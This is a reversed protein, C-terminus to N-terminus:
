PCLFRAHRIAGLERDRARFLVVTRVVEDAEEVAQVVHTVRDPDRPVRALVELRSVRHQEDLREREVVTRCVDGLVREGPQEVGRRCHHARGVRQRLVDLEPEARLGALRSEALHEFLGAVRVEPARGLGREVHDQFGAGSASRSGADAFATIPREPSAPEPSTRTVRHRRPTGARAPAPGPAARARLAWGLHRVERRPRARVRPLGRPGRLRPLGGQSRPHVCGARPLLPRPRRRPLQREGAVEARGPEGGPPSRGGSRPEVRGSQWHDLHHQSPVRSSRPEPETPRRFSAVSVVTTNSHDTTLGRALPKEPALPAIRTDSSRAPATFGRACEPTRGRPGQLAETVPGVRRTIPGDSSTASPSMVASCTSATTLAALVESRPPPPTSPAIWRAAPGSRSSAQRARFPHANPSALAVGPNASGARNTM